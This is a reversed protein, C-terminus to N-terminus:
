RVIELRGGAQRVGGATLEYYYGGAPIGTARWPVEMRGTSAMGDFPIAVIEGLLNMVRLRIHEPQQGTIIFTSEEKMPNPTCLLSIGAASITSERVALPATTTFSWVDSWPSEASGNMAAVRWYYRTAYQLALYVTSTDAMQPMDKVIASFDATESIEAHYSTASASPRWVLFGAISVNNADNAPSLLTPAPLPATGGVTGHRLGNGFSTIWVDGPKYPNFFVREPQRFPYSEVRTFVILLSRLTKTYWLGETETTVYMVDANKPDITCSTVRDLNTIRLWHTGRDTTRYLGGLDNAAGGWGSFVGVYWTNQAADHPDVVVDKTWYLMEPSSRDQWSAGGDTSIFVGSSATFNSTRRGSFTCLLTGDNLVRINFPHGETRPPTALKTWTSTSGDQINNSVYIGGQTSHIVSAYLRNPNQPDLALWIVPHRFDHLMRWTKGKDQSFLVEGQGGDIVNDALRTSQYMDHVSSAAGYLVGTTPHVAVYYMSNLTHGTYDQSWSSGGDTSRTGRIDSYSAFINASDGWALQWASTNELGNSRYAKGQPTRAGAPNTDLPNTYIERWTAGGDTTLHAFGLDTIVAMAPDVPSVAFGLAYEGYSWARDGGDGSWGTGINANNTTALVSAWSVGGNTTKYITPVGDESGGAVYAIAPSTRATSVFFPHAAADIGATRRTWSGATGDLTYVGKFLDHDSGTVGPYVDGTGLTVCYFRLTNGERAGAFSVMAEDPPIGTLPTHTFSSGGNTSVVLGLNTGLYINAGDFFAGAIYYGNGSTDQDKQTFSAGGDTSIYLNTYDTLLIRSTSAPDALLTFAGQDTPDSALPAWSGGGDTSKRPQAGDGNRSIVYLVAPDSTFQVNGIVNGGGVQRFSPVSWSAGLDTSHFIESMDCSLYIDGATHPSLSPLFLAGGGGMGASNWENPQAGGVYPALLFSIAMTVAYWIRM